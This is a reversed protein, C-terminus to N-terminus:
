AAQRLWTVHLTGGEEYDMNRACVDFIPCLAMWEAVTAQRRDVYTRLPYTGAGQLYKKSDSDEM